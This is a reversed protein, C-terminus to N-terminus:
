GAIEMLTIVKRSTGGSFEVTGSSARIQVKYTLTSTTAPTDLISAAWPVIMRSTSYGFSFGYIGNGLNTGNRDLTLYGQNGSNSNDFGGTAIVYIKSTSSTPTISASLGTDTFTSSSTITNADSTAEVVQLVSGSVNLGLDAATPTGGAATQITDVKLISTM